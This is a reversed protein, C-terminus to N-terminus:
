ASMAHEWRMLLAGLCGIRSGAVTGPPLLTGPGRGGVHLVLISNRAGAETQGLGPQQSMQPACCHISSRERRVSSPDRSMGRSPAQLRICVLLYFPTNPPPLSFEPPELCQPVLIQHCRDPGCQPESFTFVSPNVPDDSSHRQKERRQSWSWSGTGRSAALSPDLWQTEAVWM